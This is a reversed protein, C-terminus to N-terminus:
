GVGDDRYGLNAGISAESPGARRVATSSGPCREWGSASASPSGTQVGSHTRSSYRGSPLAQDTQSLLHVFCGTNAGHPYSPPLPDHGLWLWKKFDLMQFLKERDAAAHESFLHPFHLR